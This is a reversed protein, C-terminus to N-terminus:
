VKILRPDRLFWSRQRRVLRNTHQEIMEFTGDETLTRGNAPSMEGHLFMLVEAYGIAKKATIGLLPELDRVEQILGSDRMIQTRKKIRAALIDDAIDAYFQLTKPVRYEYSPLNPVYSTGTLEIVELARIIRRTNESQLTAATQPDKQLLENYLASSGETKARDELTKRVTDDRKQFEFNDILSRIYLGSGGCIIPLRDNNVIEEIDRMAEQQYLAVNQHEMPDIVDIQYHKTGFNDLLENRAALPVKATGIDMHKYRSYSDANVIDSPISHKLLEITLDIALDSKGSATPGTIVVIQPSDRLIHQVIESFNM